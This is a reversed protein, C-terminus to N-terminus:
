RQGSFKQFLGLRTFQPETYKIGHSLDTSSELSSFDSVANMVQGEEFREQSESRPQMTDQSTMRRHFLVNHGMSGPIGSWPTSRIMGLVNALLTMIRDIFSM